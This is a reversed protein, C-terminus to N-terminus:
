PRQVRTLSAIAEHGVAGFTQPAIPWDGAGRADPDPQSLLSVVPRTVSADWALGTVSWLLKGKGRRVLDGIRLGAFQDPHSTRAQGLWYTPDSTEITISSAGWVHTVDLTWADGRHIAALTVDVPSSALAYVNGPLLHTPDLVWGPDITQLTTM